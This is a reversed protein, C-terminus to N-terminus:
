AFERARVATYRALMDLGLTSPQASVTYAGRARLFALAEHREALELSAAAREPGTGSAAAAHLRPDEVIVALVVHRRAARLMNEVLGRGSDLDSLDTLVVILSRRRLKGLVRGFVGFYDSEFGREPVDRLSDMLKPVAMRGRVSPLEVEVRNSFATLSVADGQREAVRGLLVACELARELRPLGDVLGRMNRGCDVVVAIQQGREVQFRRVVLEGRRASAKWDIHRVEDGRVYNRLSEFETGAQNRRGRRVREGESLATELALRELTRFSPFVSLTGETALDRTRAAWGGRRQVRVHVRPLSVRGRRAARVRSSVRVQAGPELAIDAPPELLELGEGLGDRVQLVLADPGQNTLLLPLELEDGLAVRGVPGREVKVRVRALRAYAIGFGLLLGLVLGGALWSAGPLRGQLFWLPSLAVWVFIWRPTPM